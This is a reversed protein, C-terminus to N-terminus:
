KKPSAPPLSSPDPMKEGGGGAAPPAGGHPNGEAPAATGGHPAGSEAAGVVVWANNREQLHYKFSMGQAAGSGKPSITVAADADSGNRQVSTLAVDMGQVNLGKKALHDIVGQRIAEDNHAGRNCAVLATLFLLVSFRV